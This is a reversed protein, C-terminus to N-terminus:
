IDLSGPLVYGPPLNMKLTAAGTGGAVVGVFPHAASVAAEWGAPMSQLGVVDQLICWFTAAAAREARQLATAPPAAVPSLLPFYDTILTQTADVLGAAGEEEKTMAWLARRGFAM